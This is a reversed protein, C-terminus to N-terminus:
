EITILIWFYKLHYKSSYVFDTEEMLFKGMDKRINMHTMNDNCVNINKFCVMISSFGCHGDNNLNTVTFM